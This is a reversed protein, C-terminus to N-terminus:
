ISTSVSKEAALLKQVIPQELLEQRQTPGLRRFPLPAFMGPVGCANLLVTMASMGGHHRMVDRLEILDSQLRSAENTHSTMTTDTATDTMSALHTIKVAWRPALTYIGDLHERIGERILRQLQDPQAVVVRFDSGIQKLWAMLKRVDEIPGSCKIGAINPHQALAMITDHSLSVHTRQPLDYLYLPANSQDALTHFYSVLEQQSFQMFFPPLVVVGDVKYHNIFEIRQRTRVLSQDSAGVLMETNGRPLSAAYQILERYTEDTLLPSMGFTGAVFVGNIGAARMREFQAEFGKHHLQEDPDLPTGLAPIIAASATNM